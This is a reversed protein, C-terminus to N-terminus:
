IYEKVIKLQDNDKAVKYSYDMVDQKRTTCTYSTLM